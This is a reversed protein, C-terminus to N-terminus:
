PNQSMGDSGIELAADAENSGRRRQWPMGPLTAEREFLRSNIALVM